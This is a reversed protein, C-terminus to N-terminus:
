RAQGIHLIPQHGLARMADIYLSDALWDGLDQPSDVEHLRQAGADYVYVREDEGLYAEVEATVRLGAARLKATIASPRDQEV